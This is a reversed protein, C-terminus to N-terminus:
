KWGELYPSASFYVGDLNYMPVAWAAYYGTNFYKAEKAWIPGDTFATLCLEYIEDYLEIPNGDYVFPYTTYAWDGTDEVASLVEYLTDGWYGCYLRNLIGDAVARQCEVSCGCVERSVTRAFLDMEEETATYGNAGYYVTKIEREVGTLAPAAPTLEGYDISTQSEYPVVAAINNKLSSCFLFWGVAFISLGFIATMLTHLIPHKRM